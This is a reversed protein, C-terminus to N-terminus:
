TDFVTETQLLARIWSAGGPDRETGGHHHRQTPGAVAAWCCRQPWIIACAVGLRVRRVEHDANLDQLASHSPEGILDAAQPVSPPRDFVMATRSLVWVFFSCGFNFRLGKREEAHRLDLATRSFIKPGAKRPNEGPASGLGPGVQSIPKGHNELSGTM